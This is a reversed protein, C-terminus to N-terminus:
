DGGGDASEGSGFAYFKFFPIDTSVATPCKVVKCVTRKGHSPVLRTHDLKKVEQYFPSIRLFHACFGLILMDVAKKQRCL